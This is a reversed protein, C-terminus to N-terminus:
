RIWLMTAIVALLILMLVFVTALGYTSSQAARQEADVSSFNFAAGPIPRSPVAGRDSGSSFQNTSAM